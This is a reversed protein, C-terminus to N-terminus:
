FNGHGIMVAHDQWTTGDWYRVSRRLNDLYAADMKGKLHGGEIMAERRSFTDSDFKIERLEFQESFIYEFAPIGNGVHTDSVGNGYTWVSYLNEGNVMTQDVQLTVEKAHLYRNMDTLPFRIYFIEADSVAKGFGRTASSETKGRLKSPDLVALIASNLSDTEGIDNEGFLFLLPTGAKTIFTKQYVDGFHYYEGVTEFRDDLRFVINPSRGNNTVLFFNPSRRDGLGALLLQNPYLLERYSTGRFNITDRFYHTVPQADATSFITLPYCNERPEGTPLITLIENRGNGDVDYLLTSHEAELLKQPTFEHIGNIPVTWIPERSKNYIELHGEASNIHTYSPNMDRFLRPSLSFFLLALLGMFLFGGIGSVVPYARIIYTARGAFTPPYPRIPSVFLDQFARVDARRRTVVATSRGSEQLAPKQLEARLDNYFLRYEEWIARCGACEELHVLIEKERHRVEPARAAHAELIHEEIHIMM